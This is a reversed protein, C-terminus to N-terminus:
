KTCDLDNNEVLKKGVLKYIPGDVIGIKIEGYTTAIWIKEDVYVRDSLNSLNLNIAKTKDKETVDINV